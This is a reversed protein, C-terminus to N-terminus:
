ANDTAVETCCHCFETTTVSQDEFGLTNVIHDRLSFNVSGQELNRMENLILPATLEKGM